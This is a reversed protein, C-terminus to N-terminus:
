GKPTVSGLRRVAAAVPQGGNAMLPVSGGVCPGSGPATRIDLRGGVAAIRDRMSTLGTGPVVSQKEFGSGDDSVEFRLDGQQALVVAITKVGGAHKMANQMAELCCFYVASEIEPSYRGSGVGDTDVTTRVPSRLAAACLAERLGRDSLVSPYVGRALSRVQELAGDVECGLESLVQAAGDPSEGLLEGALDLRIRLAVLSQQAGDHLDREIRQRERDASSAIRARSKKLERLSARVVAAAAATGAGAALLLALIAHRRETLARGARVRLKKAMQLELAAVRKPFNGGRVHTDRLRPCRADPLPGTPAAVDTCTSM